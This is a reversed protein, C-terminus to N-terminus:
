FTIECCIVSLIGTLTTLAFLSQISALPFYGVILQHYGKFFKTFHKRFCSSFRFKLLINGFGALVSNEGLVLISLTNNATSVSQLLFLLWITFIQISFYCNFLDTTVFSNRSYTWYHAELFNIQLPFTIYKKDSMLKRETEVFIGRM